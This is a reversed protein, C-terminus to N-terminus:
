ALVKEYASKLQEETVGELRGCNGLANLVVFRISSGRAKKDLTMAAYLAPWNSGGAVNGLSAPLSLAKLIERHLELLQSDILEAEFALEAVFIMGISVAEGHRISYDSVKEIAHGFTHGYNLIERLESEKFDESVVKAKTAVSREILNNVLQTNSRISSLSKDKVLNLIEEDDIFGCKIVEAMGAAFDRDSLTRLWAPDIIVSIPSHFAGILNKGYPSNIGTKGGVSADVMGALTTPIAVWDIGRLWSAAAYGAVDTVTGGGVAM